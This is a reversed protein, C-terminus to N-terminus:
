IYLGNSHNNNWGIIRHKLLNVNNNNHHRTMNNPASVFLTSDKRKAITSCTSM